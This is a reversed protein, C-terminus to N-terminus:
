LCLPLFDFTPLSLSPSLTPKTESQLEFLFVRWGHGRYELGRRLGVRIMMM